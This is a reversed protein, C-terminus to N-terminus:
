VVSMTECRVVEVGFVLAAEIKDALNHFFAFRLRLDYQSMMYWRLLAGRLLKSAARDIARERNLQAIINRIRIDVVPNITVRMAVNVRLDTLRFNKGVLEAIDRM